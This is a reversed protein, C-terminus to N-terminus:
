KLDKILFMELFHTLYAIDKGEVRQGVFVLELVMTTKLPFFQFTWLPVQLLSYNSKFIKCEEATCGWLSKGAKEELSIQM